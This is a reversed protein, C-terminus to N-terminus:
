QNNRAEAELQIDQNEMILGPVSMQHIYPVGRLNKYNVFPYQGGM